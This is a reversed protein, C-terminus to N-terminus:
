CHGAREQEGADEEGGTPLKARVDRGSRMVAEGTARGLRDEREAGEPLFSSTRPPEPKTPRSTQRKAMRRPYVTVEIVLRPVLGSGSSASSFWTCHTLPSAVFGSVTAAAAADASATTCAMPARNSPTEPSLLRCFM